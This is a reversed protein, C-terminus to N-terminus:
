EVVMKRSVQGEDSAFKYFYVGGPFQSVNFSIQHQGVSYKQKPIEFVKQGTLNFIEFSLMAPEKLLVTVTTLGSAPNPFNQSVEIGYSSLEDIGVWFDDQTFYFDQVYKFQVQEGPDQPNMQLYVYPITFIEQGYTFVENGMAFFYAQWMGESLTTVNDPLWEFNDTHTIEQFVIDVGRAYIDPQQNDTVGPIDTDLWSVFMKDGEHTRAIQIRNDTTIEGFTGRFTHQRGLDYASFNEGGDVSNILFASTFIYGTFESMGTVISYPDEGTVGCIVAIQPNGWADVSLDFDYATTFEIEEVDPIPTGFLETLEDNSLFNQVEPIGNGGAITIPIPGTWTDGSDTSKWLIPYLSRGESISVMGNDALAAIYGIQGDPSFEVKVDVPRLNDLTICPLLSQTAEFDKIEENWIGRTLILEELFGITGGSWDQNCEIAWFEGLNTMTYAQARSSFIGMSTDAPIFHSTTDDTNGISGRGYLYGYGPNGPMGEVTSALFAVYAENPDTNAIPNYIGHNPYRAADLYYGGGASDRATYIEIMNTWTMGGDVSIDYGLDGTFGGPDLAGGMCHFNTVTNLEQNVCVYSGAGVAYGYANGSTGINVITVFDSGETNM